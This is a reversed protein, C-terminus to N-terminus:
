KWALMDCQLGASWADETEAWKKIAAVTEEIEDETIGADLWSQRFPDGEKLQGAARWALWERTEPGSFVRGDAGIRVKGGDADFGAKRFLAPLKTAILDVEPKGKALARSLNGGWLRDLDLSPPYFHQELGARTALIGGPKLVRRMEILAKLSMDESPLHGFLQSSVVIDFTNDDYALRELINGEEFAVSGPGETSISAQAALTKAKHLVAASIDIGVTVGSSAYKALSTTITGPGCGVDLIRDAKKIHPLLYAADSEATRREHNAVTYESHGQVYNSMTM